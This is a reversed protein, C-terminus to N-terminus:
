YVMLFEIVGDNKLIKIAVYAILLSTMSLDMTDHVGWLDHNTLLMLPGTSLIDVHDNHM